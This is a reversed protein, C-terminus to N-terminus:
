TLDTAVKSDINNQQLLVNLQNARSFKKKVPQCSYVLHQIFAAYTKEQLLVTTRFMKTDESTLLTWIGKLM